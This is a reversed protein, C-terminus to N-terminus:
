RPRHQSQRLAVALMVLVYGAAGVVVGRVAPASPTFPTTQPDRAIPPLM